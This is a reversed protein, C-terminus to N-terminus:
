EENYAKIEADLKSIMQDYTDIIKQYKVYEPSNPDAEDLQLRLLNIRTQLWEKEKEKRAYKKHRRLMWWEGITQLGFLGSKMTSRTLEPIRGGFPTTNKNEDVIYFDTNTKRLEKIATMFTYVGSKGVLRNAINATHENYQLLVAARYKPFPTSSNGSAEALDHGMADIFFQVWGSFDDAEQIIGFVTLYSLKTNFLTISKDTILEDINKEITELIEQFTGCCNSMSEMFLRQEMSSAAGKLTNKYKTYAQLAVSSSSLELLKLLAQKRDSSTMSGICSQCLKISALVLATNELIIDRPIPKVGSIKKVASAIASGIDKLFDFM